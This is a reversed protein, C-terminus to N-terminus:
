RPKSWGGSGPNLHNEWRLRGLLQAEPLCWWAQSIKTNKTYVLNWWTPWAPRFSRIEPSRGGEAEWLGLIVLTCWRAWGPIKKFPSDFWHGYSGTAAETSQNGDWGLDSSLDILWQQPCSGLTLDSNSVPLLSGFRCDRCTQAFRERLMGSSPLSAPGPELHPKWQEPSPCTFSSNDKLKQTAWNLLCTLLLCM